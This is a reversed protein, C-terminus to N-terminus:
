VKLWRVVQMPDTVEEWSHIKVAVEDHCYFWVNGERRSRGPYYDKLYREIQLELDKEDRAEFVHHFPQGYESSILEFDAMYVRKGTKKELVQPVVSYYQKWVGAKSLLARADYGCERCQATQPYDLEWVIDSCSWDDLKSDYDQRYGVFGEVQFKYSGCRPCKREAKTEETSM